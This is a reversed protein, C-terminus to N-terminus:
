AARALGQGTHDKFRVSYSHRSNQPNTTKAKVEVRIFAILRRMDVNPAFMPLALEPEIRHPQGPITTNGRMKHPLHLPQHVFM